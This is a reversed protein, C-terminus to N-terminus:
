VGPCFLGYLYRFAGSACHWKDIVHKGSLSESIMNKQRERQWWQIRKTASYLICWNEAGSTLEQTLCTANYM